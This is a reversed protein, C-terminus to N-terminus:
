FKSADEKIEKGVTEIAERTAEVVESAIEVEQGVEEIGEGVKIIDKKFTSCSCLCLCCYLFILGRINRIKEKRLVLKVFKNNM